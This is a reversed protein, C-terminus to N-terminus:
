IGFVEVLIMGAHNKGEDALEECVHLVRFGELTYAAVQATARPATTDRPEGKSGANEIKGVEDARGVGRAEDDYGVVFGRFGEVGGDEVGAFEGARDWGFGDEAEGGMVDKGEFVKRGVGFDLLGAGCGEPLYGGRL